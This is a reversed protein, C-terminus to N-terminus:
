PIVTLELTFSAVTELEPQGYVGVYWTQMGPGAFSYTVQHMSSATNEDAALHYQPAPTPETGANLYLWVDGVTTQETLTATVGTALGYFSYFLWQRQGVTGTVPTAAALLTVSGDCFEGGWGPDCLCGSM